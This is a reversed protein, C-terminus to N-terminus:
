RACEDGGKSSKERNEAIQALADAVDGYQRELLAHVEESISRPPRSKMAAERIAEKLEPRVGTIAVAWREKRGRIAACSM